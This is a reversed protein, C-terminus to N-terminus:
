PWPPAPAATMLPACPMTSALWLPATSVSAPSCVPRITLTSKLPSTNVSFYAAFRRAHELLAHHGPISAAGFSTRASVSLRDNGSSGAIHSRRTLISWRELGTTVILAALRSRERARLRACTKGIWLTLCRGERASPVLSMRDRERSAAECGLNAAAELFGTWGGWYLLPASRRFARVEPRARRPGAPAVCVFTAMRGRKPASAKRSEM